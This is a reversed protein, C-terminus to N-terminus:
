PKATAHRNPFPLIKAPEPDIMTQLRGRSLSMM